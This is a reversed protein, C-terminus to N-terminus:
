TAVANSDCAKVALVIARPALDDLLADAVRCDAINGGTMLFRLTREESDTLAHLKGNRGGRSTGIM